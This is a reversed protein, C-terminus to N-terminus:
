DRSPNPSQITTPDEETGSNRRTSERRRVDKGTGVSESNIGELKRTRFKNVLGFQELRVMEDMYRGYGGYKYESM